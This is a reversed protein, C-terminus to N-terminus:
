VDSWGSVPRPCTRRGARPAFRRRERHTASAREMRSICTRRCAQLARPEPLLELRYLQFRSAIIASRVALELGGLFRRWAALRAFLSNRPWCSGRSGCGSSRRDDAHGLQQEVGLEVGSCRSYAPSRRATPRDGARRDDVVDEVERLDLGALELDLRDGNSRARSDHVVDDRQEATRAWSCPARAARRRAAPRARRTTPSGTRSRLHQDVQDAVRDLEGLPALDHDRDATSACVVRRDHRQAELTRSVPMPMGASLCAGIKSGERLGVGRGRPTRRCRAPGPSRGAAPRASPRCWRCRSGPRSAAARERHCQAPRRGGRQLSLRGDGERSVASGVSGRGSGRDADQEGLVVLHVLEDGAISRRSPQWTASASFPRLRAARHSRRPTRGSGSPSCSAPCPRSRPPWRRDAPALRAAAPSGIMAIVALAMFPSRLTGRPRCPSIVLRNRESLRHDSSRGGGYGHGDIRGRNQQLNQRSASRRVREMNISADPEVKECHAPALRM